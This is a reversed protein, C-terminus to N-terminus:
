LNSICHANDYYNKMIIIVIIIIVNFSLIVVIIIIMVIIHDRTFTLIGRDVESYIDFGSRGYWPPMYTLRIIM